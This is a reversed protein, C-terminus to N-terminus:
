CQFLQQEAAPATPAGGMLCAAVVQLKLQMFLYNTSSDSIPDRIGAPSHPGAEGGHNIIHFHSSPSLVQAVTSQNSQNSHCIHQHSQVSLTHHFCEYLDECECQYKM